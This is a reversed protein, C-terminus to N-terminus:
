AQRRNERSGDLANRQLPSLYTGDDNRQSAYHGRKHTVGLPNKDSTYLEDILDCLVVVSVTALM